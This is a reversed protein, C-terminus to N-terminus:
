SKAKAPPYNTPQATSKQFAIEIERVAQIRQPHMFFRYLEENGAQDNGLVQTDLNYLAQMSKDSVPYNKDDL